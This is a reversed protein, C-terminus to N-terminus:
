ISLRQSETEDNMIGTRGTTADDYFAVRKSGSSCATGLTSTGHLLEAFSRGKSKYDDQMQSPFDQSSGPQQNASSKKVKTNTPPLPDDVFVEAAGNPITGDAYCSDDSPQFDKAYFRRRRRVILLMGGLLVCMFSGGVLIAVVYLDMDLGKGSSDTAGGSDISDPPFECHPGDYGYMCECGPHPDGNSVFDLCKGGNVCFAGTGNAPRIGETTCFEDAGFQCYEGAYSLGDEDAKDCDCKYEVNLGESEEDRICKAGHMCAHTGGPCVDLRFECALGVFGVPCVCHEFNSNYQSDLTGSAHHINFEAM